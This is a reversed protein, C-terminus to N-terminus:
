SPRHNNIGEYKDIFAQIKPTDVSSLKLMNGWATVVIPSGMDKHLPRDSDDVWSLDNPVLILRRNTNLYPQVVNQLAAVTELCGEPCQYYIVIGGDELNHLLYGYDQPQSWIGWEVTSEYHPGSTPPTSNYALTNSSGEAVHQNGQSAYTEQGAIPTSQRIIAYVVLGLLLAFIVVAGGLVYTQNRENKRSKSRAGTKSSRSTPQPVSPAKPKAM